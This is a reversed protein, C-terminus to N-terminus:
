PMVIPRFITSTFFIATQHRRLTWDKISGHTYVMHFFEDTAFNTYFAISAALNCQNKTRLQVYFQLTERHENECTEKGKLKSRSFGCSEFKACKREVTNEGISQSRSKIIRKNLLQTDNQVFFHALFHSTPSNLVYSFARSAIKTMKPRLANINKTQFSKPFYALGSDREKNSFYSFHCWKTHMRLPSWRPSAFIKFFPM